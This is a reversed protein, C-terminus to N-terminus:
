AEGLKRISNGMLEDFQQAVRQMSEFHRMTQMMQVMESALSVNANELYGQQLRVTSSDLAEGPVASRIVGPAVHVANSADELAILKLHGVVRDADRVEGDRAISVSESTLLIEGSQGMVPEGRDTVLRGQPDLRFNGQRTYAPGDRLMVEFYGEGAIAVDLPRGTKRLTGVSADFVRPLSAANVAVGGPLQRNAEATVAGQSVFAGFAPQYAVERKYGPTSLNSVNQSVSRLVTANQSLASAVIAYVDNM